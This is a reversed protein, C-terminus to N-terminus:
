SMLEINANHCPAGDAATRLDHPGLQDSRPTAAKLIASASVIVAATGALWEIKKVARM